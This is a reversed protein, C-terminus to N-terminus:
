AALALVQASAFIFATERESHCCRPQSSFRLSGNGFTMCDVADIVRQAHMICIRHACPASATFRMFIAIIIINLNQLPLDAVLLHNRTRQPSSVIRNKHLTCLSGSM